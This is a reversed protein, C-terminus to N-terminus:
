EGWLQKLSSIGTGARLNALLIRLRYESKMTKLLQSFLFNPRKIFEKYFGDIMETLEEEKLQSPFIKVAAVPVDWYEDEDLYGSKIATNWLEMGPSLNLLNMQPFDMGRLSLIFDFTTKVDKRTEIPAGVIFSGIINEIGAKKGNSVAKRSIEPTIAKGYYDLVKQSGSEIGFYITKCGARSFKSLIEESAQDARGEAWLNLKVKRAKLLDCIKEVRKKNLLLNDDVFGVEEYGDSYLLEM